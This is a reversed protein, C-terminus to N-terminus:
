TMARVGELAKMTMAAEQKRLRRVMLLVGEILFREDVVPEVIEVTVAAVWRAVLADVVEREVRLVLALELGRAKPVDCHCPRVHM